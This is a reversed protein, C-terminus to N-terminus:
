GRGYGMIGGNRALEGTSKTGVQDILSDLKQQDFVPLDNYPVGYLQNSVANQSYNGAFMANNPLENSSAQDNFNINDDYVQIKTNADTGPNKNTYFDQLTGGMNSVPMTVGSAMKELAEMERAYQDVGGVPANSLYEQMTIEPQQLGFGENADGPVGLLNGENADGPVGLLNGEDSTAYPDNIFGENADGALRGNGFEDIMDATAFRGPNGVGFDNNDMGGLQNQFENIMDATAYQGPNGMEYDNPQVMGGPNGVDFDNNDIGLNGIDYDNPAMGGTITTPRQFGDLNYQPGSPVKATGFNDLNYQPGGPMIVNAKPMSDGAITATLGNTRDVTPRYGYGEIMDINKQSFNKKADRRDYMKDLRKIYQRDIRADEYEQQTRKSGDPNFGRGAFPNNINMKGFMSALIGAPKNFLGIASSALNNPTFFQKFKNPPKKFGFKTLNTQNTNNDSRAANNAALTQQFDNRAARYQDGSVRDSNANSQSRAEERAAARGQGGTARDSANRGGQYSGPGRYGPRSGDKSPTVLQPVKKSKMMSGIGGGNKYGMGTLGGYANYDIGGMRKQYEDFSEGEIVQVGNEYDDILQAYSNESAM